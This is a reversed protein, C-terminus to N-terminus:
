KSFQVDSVYIHGTLKQDFVFEIKNIAALNVGVFDALPIRVSKLIARRYVYGVPYPINTYKSTAVISSKGAADTLRVSFATGDIPNREDFKAAARLSLLRYASADVNGDDKGTRLTFVPTATGAAEKGPWVIRGVTLEADHLWDNPPPTQCTVGACVAVDVGSWTNAGGTSNTLGEKSDATFNEVNLIQDPSETYAVHVPYRSQIPLPRDGTFLDRFDEGGIYHRFFGMTYMLFSDQQEARQTIIPMDICRFGPDEPLWETNTFNHNAGVIHIQSKPAPNRSERLLRSRDYARMGQNDFVDADCGPLLVSFAVDNVDYLPSPTTSIQAVRGFDVPGIELVARINFPRGVRRNIDYAARVGEGGRSHGMLGVHDLDVKGSFQTGFPYAGRATNWMRWFKLHEMVLWGREPIGNARTNVSNANISAVIYGWSALRAGIYDYGANNPIPEFGPQCFPPNPSAALLLTPETRRCIASNGHLFLILPYPGGSMDEPYWVNAFVDVAYPVGTVIRGELVYVGQTVKLSGFSSPDAVPPRQQAFSAACAILSALILRNM